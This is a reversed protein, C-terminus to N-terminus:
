TSAWPVPVGSPSGISTCARPATKPPRAALRQEETRDLRVDAMQLGRGADGPQDLGHERQLVTLKRPVQMEVHGFGSTSQGRSASRTGVCVTDSAPPGGMAPTLENPKLPVFACRTSSAAGSGSGRGESASRGCWTERQRRLRAVRNGGERPTMRFRECVAIGREAVDAECRARATRGKRVAQGHDRRGAVLTRRAEFEEGGAFSRPLPRDSVSVLPRPDREREGTLARLVGARASPQVLTLRQKAARDVAAVHHQAVRSQEVLREDVDHM